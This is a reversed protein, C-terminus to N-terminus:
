REIKCDPLALQVKRIGDGSVKTRGLDLWRLQKLGKLNELGADTVDSNFLDLHEIRKFGKIHKLVADANDAGSLDLLSVQGDDWMLPVKQQVSFGMEMAGGRPLSLSLSLSHGILREIEVVAEKQRNTEEERLQKAQRTEAAVFNRPVSGALLILLSARFCSQKLITSNM